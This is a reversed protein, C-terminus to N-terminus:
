YAYQLNFYIASTPTDEELGTMDDLMVRSAMINGSFRSHNFKLGVGINSLKGTLDEAFDSPAHQIGYSIDAYLYPQFVRHLKEGFLEIEGMRPLPFLWDAGLYVGDDAQFGNVSFARARNPGTLNLQNLNSISKGAYQLSNKVLFRTEYTTFPVSFFSLMSLDYAFYAEDTKKEGVVFDVSEVSASHVSVSGFYLQRSKENLLDFNFSLSLKQITTDTPSSKTTMKTEINSYKIETSLNKVRSRRFYYSLGVDAVTSKGTFLEVDAQALLRSSFDNTSAGISARLRPGGLLANYRISGYTTRDPNYSKLVGLYLEDGYGLPNHLYFDAYARNKSTSESGHNDLRVNFNYRKEELVKVTLKTDGVQGGPSFFGQARVGPIDNILYLGEDVKRNTVPRYMDRRFVRRIMDASVRQNDEVEIEGLEGLLLTLSVVGDRVQQKPIFAKALIFGRERYYRTITDAVTEIMGLTAGRRRMLDRILFVFKQVEIDGVHQIPVSKEIDVVLESMEALEDLSFGSEMKEGEDMMDFRISEVQKQLDELTIGLEPFEVIGQLRFEKVNLRPGARPDPDRERVAPIDMDLLMSEREYEPVETVDPMELFGQSWASPKFLLLFLAVCTVCPLSFLLKPQKKM